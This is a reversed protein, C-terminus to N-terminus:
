ARNLSISNNQIVNNQAGNTTAAYLLAVGWETMNNTGDNTITNAANETIVFGSVTIFDAGILKFIGDTLVGATQNSPATITNGNGTLIVPNM